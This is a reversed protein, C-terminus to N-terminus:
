DQIPAAAKELSSFTDVNESNSKNLSSYKLNFQAVQFDALQLSSKYDGVLYMAKAKWYNLRLMCNREAEDESNADLNLADAKEAADLIMYDNYLGRIEQIQELTAKSCVPFYALPPDIKYRLTTKKEKKPVENEDQIIPESEIQDSM